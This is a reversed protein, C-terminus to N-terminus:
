CMWDTLQRFQTESYLGRGIGAQNTIVILLYGLDTAHRCLEFIDEVYEFDDESHIYGRDINIVGDRDLFLARRIPMVDGGTRIPLTRLRGSRRHRHIPRSM